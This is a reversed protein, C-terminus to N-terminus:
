SESRVTVSILGVPFRTCSNEPTPPLPSLKVPVVNSSAADVGIVLPEGGKVPVNRGASGSEVIIPSGEFPVQLSSAMSLTGISLPLMSAQVKFIVTESGNAVM